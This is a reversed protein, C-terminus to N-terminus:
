REEWLKQRAVDAGGCSLLGDRLAERRLYWSVLAEGFMMGSDPSTGLDALALDHRAVHEDVPRHLEDTERLAVSRLVLLQTENGYAALWRPSHAVEPLPPEPWDTM